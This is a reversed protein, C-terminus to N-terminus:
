FNASLFPAHSYRCRNVRALDSPNSSQFSFCSPRLFYSFAFVRIATLRTRTHLHVGHPQAYTLARQQLQQSLRSRRTQHLEPTYM